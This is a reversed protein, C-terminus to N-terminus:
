LTSKLVKCTGESCLGTIFQLNTTGVQQLSKDSVKLYSLRWFQLSFKITKVSIPPILACSGFRRHHIKPWHAGFLRSQSTCHWYLSNFVKFANVTHLLIGYDELVFTFRFITRELYKQVNEHFLIHLVIPKRLCVFGQRASGTLTLSNTM